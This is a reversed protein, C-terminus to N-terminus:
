KQKGGKAVVLKQMMARVGATNSAPIARDEAPKRAPAPIQENWVALVADDIRCLLGVQWASLRVLRLRCFAEIDSFTLPNAAM